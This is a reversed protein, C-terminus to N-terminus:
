MLIEQKSLLIPLFLLLLSQKNEKEKLIVHCMLIVHSRMSFLVWSILKLYSFSYNETDQM